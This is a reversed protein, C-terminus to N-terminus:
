RFSWTSCFKGNTLQKATDDLTWNCTVRGPTEHIGSRGRARRAWMASSWHTENVPHRSRRCRGVGHVLRPGRYGRPRGRPSRSRPLCPGGRDGLSLGASATRPWLTAAGEAQASDFPVITVGFAEVESRLRQTAVGRAAAKQVTESWNVASMAAGDLLPVVQDAGAEQSLVALLASADLVCAFPRV